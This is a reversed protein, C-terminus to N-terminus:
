RVLFNVVASWETTVGKTVRARVRFGVTTLPTLGSVTTMAEPTPPLDAFTKGDTTSQWDFFHKRRLNTKGLIATANAELVVPGGPLSQMAELIAKNRQPVLVVDVGGALLTQVAQDPPGSDALSQMYVLESDMMGALIGVQVNRAANTGKGGNAAVTVSKDTTVIQASFVPLTPNPTTFLSAHDTLGKEMLKSRNLVQTPNRRRVDLKGKARKPNM